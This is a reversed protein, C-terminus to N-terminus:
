VDRKLQIQTFLSTIEEAATDVSGSSRLGFFSPVNMGVDTFLFLAVAVGFTFTAGETSVVSSTSTRVASPRESPPPTPEHQVAGNVKVLGRHLRRAKSRVRVDRMFETSLRTLLVRTDIKRSRDWTVLLDLTLIGSATAPERTATRCRFHAYTGVKSERTRQSILM